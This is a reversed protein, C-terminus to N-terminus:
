EYVSEVEYVSNYDLGGCVESTNAQCKVHCSSPNKAKGFSGYTNGCFCAHGAQLGFYKYGLPACLSNCREVSDGGPPFQTKETGATAEAADPKCHGTSHVPVHPLDCKGHVHDIFCGKFNSAPVPPCKHGPCAPGPNPKPGPSPSPPGPPPPPVGPWAISGKETATDWKAVVGSEFSRSWLVGAQTPPGLPAGLKRGFRSDWGNCLLYAGPELGLLFQAVTDDNCRELSRGDSINQGSPLTETKPNSYSNSGGVVLYSGKARTSNILQHLHPPPAIKVWVINGLGETPGNNVKNYFTGANGTANTVMAVARALTKQKGATYKDVVEQTVAENVSKTHGNRKAICTGNEQCHFPVMGCCDCYVGDAAGDVIHKQIIDLWSSAGKPKGFDFFYSPYIGQGGCVSWNSVGKQGALVELMRQNELVPRVPDCNEEHPQGATDTVMADAGYQSAADFPWLYVSNMYLVNHPGPLSQAKASAAVRKFVDEQSGHEECSADCGKYTTADPESPDWGCQSHGEFRHPCCTAWCHGDEQM